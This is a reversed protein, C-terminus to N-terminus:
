SRFTRAAKAPNFAAPALAARIHILTPILANSLAVARPTPRMEGSGRIFLEDKLAHQLRKLAHSITSQSLNLREAARTVSREQMVAEFVVLLNLDIRALDNNKM